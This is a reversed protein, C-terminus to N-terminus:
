EGFSASAAGAFEQSAEETQSKMGPIVAPRKGYIAGRFEGGFEMARGVDGIISKRYGVIVSEGDPDVAYGVAARISGDHTHPPSGVASEGSSSVISQRIKQMGDFGMRALFRRVVRKLRSEIRPDSEIANNM